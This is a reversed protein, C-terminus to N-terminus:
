ADFRKGYGQPRTPNPPPPAAPFARRTLVIDLTSRFSKCLTKCFRSTHISTTTRGLVM